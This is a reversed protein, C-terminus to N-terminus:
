TKISVFFLKVENGYLVKVENGYLLKVENGYLVGRCSRDWVSEIIFTFARFLIFYCYSFVLAYRVM